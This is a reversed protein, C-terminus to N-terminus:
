FYATTPEGGRCGGCGNKAPRWISGVMARRDPDQDYYAFRRQKPESAAIGARSHCFDASCNVPTLQRPSGAAMFARIITIAAAVYRGRETKIMSLPDNAFTTAGAARRQRRAFLAINATRLDEVILLNVGTATVLSAPAVTLNQQTGFLRIEVAGQTLIQALREGELIGNVNDISIAGLGKLLASDLRKEFEDPARGPSVVPACRGSALM